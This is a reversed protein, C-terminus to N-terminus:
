ALGANGQLDLRPFLPELPKFKFTGHDQGLANLLLAMKEPMVPRLMTGTQELMSLVTYLLAQLRDKQGPDKALTWPQEEGILSNGRSVLWWAEELAHSILYQEMKQHYTKIHVGAESLVEAYANHAPPAIADGFYKRGMSLTRSLLNGLDNALDANYRLRLREESFDGDKDWPVERMLHFRLVDAGYTAALEVPDAVNGRSKSMKEGQISIFGHGWVSRPVPLEAAMLMAPWVLGHFRTIDKGIVHLDAPWYTKFAASELEGLGSVYNILADFWVYAVANKDFPLPIGWDTGARSISIDQLGQELVNLLENRRSEPRVFDPRSLLERLPKSFASLKFFYNEERIWEPRTKHNPCLGDVLDKDQYFAECSVCYHGEYPAKFIYGREYIRQAIAQVTRHHRPETTQIFDDNSIHLAKWATKFKGAMLDCYAKPDLGLEEAKKRVNQSHEDNGMLFRVDLGQSRKYRAIVDAGIKEFATGLHPTSNAYDIATTIYFTKM